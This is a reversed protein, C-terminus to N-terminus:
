SREGILSAQVVLRERSTWLPTCTYLTLTPKATPGQVGVATPAVTKIGTVMYTYEKNKWDVAIHDNLQIKDLFYFVGGGTYTFRHGAMVTNSAKDPTSTGPILWVGKRLGELSVDNHITERMGLRPIVLLNEKPVPVTNLRRTEQAVFVNSHRTHWWSLQPLLPMVLIYLGVLVVLITLVHNVRRLSVQKTFNMNKNHCCSVFNAYTSKNECM